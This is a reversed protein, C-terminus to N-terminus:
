IHVDKNTNGIQDRRSENPRRTKLYELQHWYCNHCVVLTHIKKHRENKTYECNPKDRVSTEITIYDDDVFYIWGKDIDGTSRHWIVYDDVQPKYPHAMRDKRTEM